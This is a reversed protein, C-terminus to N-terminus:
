HMVDSPFGLSTIIASCTGTDIGLDIFRIVPSTLVRVAGDLALPIGFTRALENGTGLPLLGPARGTGAIGSVVGGRTGDGGAAVVVDARALETAHGPAEICVIEHELRCQERARWRGPAERGVRGNGAISNAVVYYKVLLVGGATSFFFAGAPGSTGRRRFAYNALRLV